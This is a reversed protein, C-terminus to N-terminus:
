PGAQYPEFPSGESASANLRAASGNTFVAYLQLRETLTAPDHPLVVDLEFGAHTANAAVGSRIDPRDIFPAQWAVIDGDLVLLVAEVDTGTAVDAAWGRVQLACGHPTFGELSGSFRDNTPFTEGSFVIEFNEVRGHPEPVARAGCAPQANPDKWLEYEWEVQQVIDPNELAWARIGERREAVHADITEATLPMMFNPPADDPLEGLLGQQMLDGFALSFHFPDYWYIMDPGVPEYVAANPQAFSVLPGIEAVRHLWDAVLEWGGVFDFYYDSYAHNPTVVFIVEVGHAEGLAVIRYLAEFALDSPDPLRDDKPHYVWIGAPFAAFPGVPNHGPPYVFNGGPAIQYVQPERLFLNTGLTRVSDVLADIGLTLPLADILHGYPSTEIEDGPISLFNYVFIEIYVRELNPNIQLYQELHVVNMPLSNAPIAANYAPALASANAIAPDISQHIRSTGMFITRPQQEWVEYPKIQRDIDVRAPKIANLGRVEVGIPSIGYPDVLLVLALAFALGALASGILVRLMNRAVRETTEGTLNAPSQATDTQTM